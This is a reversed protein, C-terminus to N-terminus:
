HKRSLQRTAAELGALTLPFMRGGFIDSIMAISHTYRWNKEAEPNLWIANPWQQLLRALWVSGAEPNWHEVSGGPHAIEYPSMSADGVVIVKYDPGYKHILDFTPIVEALRRRNDKWVREYLCNHFYFYELQRFEARAASFLEEVVRIHDDMSGGVDFFMLLKVANRREPRTKVDLYGHEATAHITGPLDFEEEAGERVWRRLRKLAVKINRTGLEVTDDFNKFERKDWVKVARRHRSEHQGIRVGEPNYGYAGFPSTGGTGIWKSGGQHRGKQEELRQKLTEMLKDFGGLAEVLKKEEETLHKEALRRLWEEPINAVDLADPGGLAEVGKFVHAFVQDFRDIHREDKVLASRALYYFAEVDYDVLGAELGELLSLYERLSVPVRAAKLELFFPIFM